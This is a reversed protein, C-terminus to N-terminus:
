GVIIYDINLIYTKGAVLDVGNILYRTTEVTGYLISKDTINFIPVYLQSAIPSDIKIINAGATVAQKTTFYIYGSIVKGSQRIRHANVTIYNTNASTISVVLSTNLSRMNPANIDNHGCGYKLTHVM